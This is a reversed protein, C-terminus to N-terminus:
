IYALSKFQKWYLCQYVNCYILTCNLRKYSFNYFHYKLSTFHISKIVLVISLSYYMDERGIKCVWSLIETMISTCVKLMIENMSIMCLPLQLSFLSNLVM